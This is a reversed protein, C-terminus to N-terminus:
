VKTAGASIEFASTLSGGTSSSDEEKGGGLGLDKMQEVLDLDLGEAELVDVDVAKM